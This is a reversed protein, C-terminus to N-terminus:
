RKNFPPIFPMDVVEAEVERNRIAVDVKSGKETYPFTW